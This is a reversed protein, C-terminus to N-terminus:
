GEWTRVGVGYVRMRHTRTTGSRHVHGAGHGIRAGDNLGTRAMEIVVGLISLSGGNEGAMMVVRRTGQSRHRVLCRVSTESEREVM